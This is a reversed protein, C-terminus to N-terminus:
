REPELDTTVLKGDGLGCPPVSSPQVPRLGGPGLKAEESVRRKRKVTGPLWALVLCLPLSECHCARLPLSAPEAYIMECVPPMEGRADSRVGLM